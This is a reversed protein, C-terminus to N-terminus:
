AVGLTKLIERAAEEAKGESNLIIKVPAGTLVACASGMARSFQLEENVAEETADDRIRTSDKMRRSTIESPRAEVLVFLKPALLEMVHNPMGPMYGSITKIAMHTDILTVGEAEALLDSIAHAVEKQVDLQISLDSKRMKDRETTEGRKKFIELTITGYNLLNIKIGAKEALKQVLNCVTSKGTGPIGTVVVTGKM